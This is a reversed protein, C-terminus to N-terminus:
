WSASALPLRRRDIESGPPHHRALGRCAEIASSGQYVVRRIEHSAPVPVDYRRALIVVCTHVGEAVRCMEAVPEACAAGVESRVSSSTLMEWAAERHKSSRMRPLAAKRNTAFHRMATVADLWSDVVM